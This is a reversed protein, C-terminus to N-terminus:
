GQGESPEPTSPLHELVADVDLEVGAVELVATVETGQGCRVRFGTCHELSHAKGEDDILDVEVDEWSPITGLTIGNGVRTKTPPKCRIRVHSM